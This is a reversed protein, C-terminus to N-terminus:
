KKFETFIGNRYAKGGSFTTNRKSKKKKSIM